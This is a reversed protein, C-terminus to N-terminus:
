VLTFPLSFSIILAGFLVNMSEVKTFKLVLFALTRRMFNPTDCGSSISVMLFITLSMRCERSFLEIM